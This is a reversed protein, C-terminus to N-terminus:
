VNDIKGIKCEKLTYLNAWTVGHVDRRKWGLWVVYGYRVGWLLPHYYSKGLHWHMNRIQVVFFLSMCNSRQADPLFVWLVAVTSAEAIGYLIDHHVAISVAGMQWKLILAGSITMISDFILYRLLVQLQADISVWNKSETFEVSARQGRIQKSSM